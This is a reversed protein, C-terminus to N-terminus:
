TLPNTVHGGTRCNERPGPEEADLRTHPTRSLETQDLHALVAVLGRRRYRAGPLIQEAVQRVQSYTLPPPWVTPSKQETYPTTLGHIRHVIGGAADFVFDMLQSSLALGVIVLTGGPRLLDRMRCLAKRIDMHHVVAISAVLDFSEPSFEHVLFDGTIFEVGTVGLFRRAREISARDRDIAVVHPVLPELDHALFGEGCGVDLAAKAGPPVAELIVRHYHLNHNWGDPSRDVITRYGSWVCSSGSWRGSPVTHAPPLGQADDGEKGLNRQPPSLPPGPCFRVVLAVGCALPGSVVVPRSAASRPPRGGLPASGALRGSCVASFCLCAAVAGPGGPRAPPRAASFLGAVSAASSSAISPGHGFVDRACLLHGDVGIRAQELGRTSSAAQCKLTFCLSKTSVSHSFVKARWALCVSPDVQYEAGAFHGSDSSIKPPEVVERHLRLVLSCPESTRHEALRLM